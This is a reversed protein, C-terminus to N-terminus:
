EDAESRLIGAAWFCDRMETPVVGRLIGSKYTIVRRLNALLKHKLKHTFCHAAM